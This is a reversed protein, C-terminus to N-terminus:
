TAYGRIQNNSIKNGALRKNRSEDKSLRIMERKTGGIKVQEEQPEHFKHKAVYADDIMQLYKPPAKCIIDMLAAEDTGWKGEGADYFADADEEAKSVNHYTSDFTEELGQLCALHLKKLM